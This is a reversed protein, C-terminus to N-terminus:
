VNVAIMIASVYRLLIVFNKDRNPLIDRQSLIRESYTRNKIIECFNCLVFTNFVGLLFHKFVTGVTGVRM